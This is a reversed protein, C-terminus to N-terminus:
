FKGYKGGCDGYVDDLIDQIAKEDLEFSPSTPTDDDSYSVTPEGNARRILNEYDFRSFSWRWDREEYIRWVISMAGFFCGAYLAACVLGAVIYSSLKESHSSACIAMVFGGVSSILWFGIMMGMPGGHLNSYMNDLLVVKNKITQAENVTKKKAYKQPKVLLTLLSLIGWVAFPLALASLIAVANGGGGELPVLGRVWKTASDLEKFFPFRAMEIGKCGPFIVTWTICFLVATLLVLFVFCCIRRRVIRGHVFTLEKCLWTDAADWSGEECYKELKERDQM